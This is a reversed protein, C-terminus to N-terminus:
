RPLNMEKFEGSRRRAGLTQMPRSTNIHAPRGLPCRYHGLRAEPPGNRAGDRPIRDMEPSIGEGDLQQRPRRQFGVGQRREQHVRGKPPLRESCPHRPDGPRNRAAEEIGYDLSAGVIEDPLQAVDATPLLAHRPRRARHCRDFGHQRAEGGGGSPSALLPM